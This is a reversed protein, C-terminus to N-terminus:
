DVKGKANSVKDGLKQNRAVQDFHSQWLEIADKRVAVFDADRPNQRDLARKGPGFMWPGFDIVHNKPYVKQDRFKSDNAVIVLAQRAAEIVLPDEDALLNMLCSSPEKKFQFYFAAAIRHIKDSSKVALEVQEENKEVLMTRAIGRAKADMDLIESFSETINKLYVAGSRPM